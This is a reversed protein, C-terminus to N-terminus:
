GPEDSHQRSQHRQTGVTGIAQNAAFLQSGNIADTSGGDVRGAAVNTITREAGAAGVSVTSGPTTGAFAYTTGNIVTIPPVWRRM